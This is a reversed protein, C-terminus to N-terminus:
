LPPASLEIGAQDMAAPNPQAVGRPLLLYYTGTARMKGAESEAAAGFGFFVDGRVPGRIAGGTDQAVLLRRLAMGDQAADLWIPAGLPLFRPDIALSRGATLAVGEAGIPGAGKLERFFVYSPNEDMLAQAKAPNAELWARIAALTVEDKRIEGRAVLLRGIPVYARGNQGDYGVAVFSGDPLRVRGSGQISLIFADVPDDVWLFALGDRQLAGREIEARTAYPVLRGDVVRGAIRDGRWDARFLGLEVSVLDRPRRLLPTTFAGGQTRAGKLEPEFYGTFLGTAERNNSVRFPAFRTEFFRRAEADSPHDLAAAAACPARWDGATGAVGKPGVPAAPAHKLVAGCSKLFAPIAQAMADDRWGELDTFQAPALTLRPPPPPPRPTCAFLALLAVAFAIAATV